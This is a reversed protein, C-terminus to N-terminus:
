EYSDELLGVVAVSDALRRALGIGELRSLFRDSNESLERMPVHAGSQALLPGDSPDGGVIIGWRQRLVDLFDRYELPAANVDISTAVLVELTRDTPVLRKNPNKQQPYLLGSRVGLLRLYGDLGRGSSGVVSRILEETIEEEASATDGEDLLDLLKEIVKDRPDVPANGAKQLLENLADVPRSSWDPLHDRLLDALVRAMYYRGDAIVQAVCRTSAEAVNSYRDGTADLLLVREPTAYRERPRTSAHVFISLAALLVIRQLSAIPNPKLKQEYDALSAAAQRLSVEVKSYGTSVDESNIDPRSKKKTSEVLPSLLASLDDLQSADKEPATLQDLLDLIALREGEGVGSWLRYIFGGAGDDSLDPTVTLATPSSFSSFDPSSGFAAGDAGLLSRILPLLKTMLVSSKLNETEGLRGWREKKDDLLAQVAEVRREVNSKSLTAEFLKQLVGMRGVCEHESRMLANAIHVPKIKSEMFRYGHRRHIEDSIAKRLDKNM